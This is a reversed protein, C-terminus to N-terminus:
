APFNGLALKEASSFFLALDSMTHKRASSHPYQCILWSLFQNFETQMIGGSPPKEPPM